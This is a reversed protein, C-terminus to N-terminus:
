VLLPAGVSLSGTGLHVVNQGFMVKGDVKRYTALTRLPEVGRETTEQDTTTVVCRDCSKVVHFAIGGAEFRELRDEAYPEGGAIVLNPRFRNMPLPQALRANLDALSEESILLFPFADAFGVRVGDPAYAPDAPRVTAEPMYVLECPSGLVDSFWKAPRPGLWVADCAEDWITAKVVVSGTPNLSLELPQVGPADLTLGDERVTPRVLALRPHTRQSVLLGRSDVVMWRRDHRLGFSDVEWHLVSIGAAAKIPYVALSTLRLDPVYWTEAPM